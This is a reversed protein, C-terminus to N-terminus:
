PCINVQELFDLLAFLPIALLVELTLVTYYARPRSVTANAMAGFGSLYGVFLSAMAVVKVIRGAVNRVTRSPPSGAVTGSPDGPPSLDLPPPYSPDPLEPDTGTPVTKTAM